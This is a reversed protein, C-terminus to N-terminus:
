QESGKSKLIIKISEETGDPKKYRIELENLKEQVETEDQYRQKESDSMKRASPAQNERSIGRMGANVLVSGYQNILEVIGTFAYVTFEKKVQDYVASFATGKVAAVGTPTELRFVVNQKKVSVFVEGVEMYVRKILAAKRREGHVVVDSRSRIKMLSKDDTFLLAALSRDGTRINDGSNLRVGRRANRWATGNARKIQIKGNTKFLFAVNKATKTQGPQLQVIFFALIFFIVRKTKM